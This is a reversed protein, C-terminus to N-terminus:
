LDDENEWDLKADKWEAAGGLDDLLRRAKEQRAEWEDREAVNEAHSKECRAVYEVPTGQYHGHKRYFEDDGIADLDTHMLDLRRRERALEERSHTSTKPSLAAILKEMGLMAVQASEGDKLEVTLDYRVHEYSGLNYLRGITIKTIKM